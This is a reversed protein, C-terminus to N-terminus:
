PVIMLSRGAALDRIKSEPLAVSWVTVEDLWGDWPQHPAGVNKNTGIFLPKDSSALALAHPKEAIQKGNAFLRITTRDYTAAVHVWVDVAAVPVKLEITDNPTPPAVYLFLLPGDFGFSYVERSTDGLQRSVITHHAGDDRIHKIWASFTFQQINLVPDALRVEIGANLTNLPFLIAGGVHGRGWSTQPDLAMLMGDLHNLSADAAVASGAADDLPWYGVLGSMPVPVPALDPATDPPLDPALDPALVARDAERDPPGAAADMPTGAADIQMTAADPSSPSPLDAAADAPEPTTQADNTIELRYAPNTATCAAAM